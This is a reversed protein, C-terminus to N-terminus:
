SFLNIIQSYLKSISEDNISIKNFFLTENNNSKVYYSITQNGVELSIREDITNKWMFSVTGNPNPYIDDIKAVISNELLDILKLANFASNIQLPHAGYGDWNNNLSKFSLIEKILEDKNILPTNIKIYDNIQSQQIVEFESVTNNVISTEIVKYKFKIKNTQDINGTGMVSTALAGGLIITKVYNATKGKEMAMAELMLKEPCLFVELHAFGLDSPEFNFVSKEM